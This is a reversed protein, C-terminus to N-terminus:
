RKLVGGAAVLPGVVESGITSSSGLVTVGMEITAFGAPVGVCVGNLCCRGNEDPDGPIVVHYVLAEGFLM